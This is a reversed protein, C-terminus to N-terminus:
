FRVAWACVFMMAWVCVLSLDERADAPQFSFSNIKESKNYHYLNICILNM